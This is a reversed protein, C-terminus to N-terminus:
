DNLFKEFWFFPSISIWIISWWGTIPKMKTQGLKKEPYVKRAPVELHRYGLKISKILLYPEFAYKNLISAKLAFRPDLLLSSRIARFGNTSETLSKGSRLSTLWPHIKQTAWIRYKPMPGFNRSEHLYRSGQVFDAKGEAIPDILNRIDEPFDKNNGALVCIVDINSDLAHMYGSRIAAGVGSNKGANLVTIKPSFTKAYLPTADKSADDSVIVMDIYDFPIRELVSEIKGIENFTPIVIGISLGKYV